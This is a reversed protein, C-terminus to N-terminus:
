YGRIMNNKIFEIIELQNEDLVMFASSIELESFLVKMNEEITLPLVEGNLVAINRDNKMHEPYKSM